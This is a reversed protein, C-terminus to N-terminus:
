LLRPRHDGHPRPCRALRPPRSDVAQIEQRRAAEAQLEREDAAIEAPTPPPLSRLEHHMQCRACSPDKGKCLSCSIGELKKELRAVIRQSKALREASLEKSRQYRAEDKAQKVSAAAEDFARVEAELFSRCDGCYKQGCAHPTGKRRMWTRVNPHPRHCVCCLIDPPTWVPAREPGPM